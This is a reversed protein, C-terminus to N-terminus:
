DSELPNKCIFITDDKTVIFPIGLQLQKSLRSIMEKFILDRKEIHDPVFHPLKFIFYKKLDEFDGLEFRLFNYYKKEEVEAFWPSLLQYGNCDNFSDILSRCPLTDPKEFGLDEFVGNVLSVVETLHHDSHTIVIFVGSPKLVRSIEKIISPFFYLAYSCIVLDISDTAIAMIAKEDSGSFDGKLGAIKSSELYAARNKPCLDIGLINCDPNLRDKFARTFFGFGCGIDLANKCDRLQLGKLAVNRVDHQNTSYNNVIESVVKHHSTDTFIEALKKYNIHSVPM